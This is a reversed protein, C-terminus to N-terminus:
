STRNERTALGDDSASTCLHLATASFPRMLVISSNVAALQAGDNGMVKEITNGPM